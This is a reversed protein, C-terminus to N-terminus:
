NKQKMQKKFIIMIPEVLSNEKASLIREIHCIFAKGKIEIERASLDSFEDFAVSSYIMIMEAAEAPYKSDFLGIENGEEILTTIIPVVGSLLQEQMKQHLLANQPKHIQEFVEEQVDGSVNLALIIGTLRDQLPITKDSVIIKARAIGANTIRNVIADLIEEKSKFHHYLTGRAIGIRKIIDNTSANDFGKEAFLQEAVDLIENKREEASKVVRMVLVWEYGLRM